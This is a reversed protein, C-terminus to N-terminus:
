IESALEAEEREVNRQQQKAILRACDEILTENMDKGSFHIRKIRYNEGFKETISQCGKEGASDNDLGLKIDTIEPHDILYQELANDATCGLALLHEDQVMSMLNRYKFFSLYSLIDIPAEAVFLVGSKGPKSFCYRKDSGSVEGKFPEKGQVTYTGRISAYRAIGDVDCGVFVCSNHVNEYLLKKDVFEKVIAPHIMRTKVLYAFIHKYTNNQTPLVFPEKEEPEENVHSSHIFELEGDENLIHEMAEKWTMNELEMLFQIPGGGTNNAFRYWRNRQADIVFGGMDKIRIESGKKVVPYGRNKALQVIDVRNAKEIQEESFRKYNEISVGGRM